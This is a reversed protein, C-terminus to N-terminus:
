IFIIYVKCVSTYIQVSNCLAFAITKQSYKLQVFVSADLTEDIYLEYQNWQFTIILFFIRILICFIYCFVSTAEYVRYYTNYITLTNWFNIM